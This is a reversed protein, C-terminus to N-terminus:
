MSDISQWEGTKIWGTVQMCLLIFRTLAAVVSFSSIVVGAAVAILVFIVALVEDLPRLTLIHVGVSVSTILSLLVFALRRWVTKFM